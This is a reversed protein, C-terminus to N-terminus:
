AEAAARRRVRAALELGVRERGTAVRDEGVGEARLLVVLEVAVGNRELDRVRVHRPKHDFEPAARRQAADDRDLAHAVARGGRTEGAM